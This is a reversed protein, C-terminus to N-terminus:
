GEASGGGCCVLGHRGKRTAIRSLKKHRILTLTLAFSAIIRPGGERGEKRGGERGRRRRVTPIFRSSFRRTKPGWEMQWPFKGQKGFLSPAKRCSPHLTLPHSFTLPPPRPSLSASIRQPPPSPLPSFSSSQLSRPSPLPSSSFPPSPPDARPHSNNHNNHNNHNNNSSTRSITSSCRSSRSSRSSSGISM